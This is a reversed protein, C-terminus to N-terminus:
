ASSDFSCLFLHAYSSVISGEAYIAVSIGYLFVKIYYVLHVAPRAKFTAEAIDLATQNLVLIHKGKNLQQLHVAQNAAVKFLVQQATAVYVQVYADHYRGWYPIPIVPQLAPDPVVCGSFSRNIRDREEMMAAALPRFRDPLAKEVRENLFQTATGIVNFGAFSVLGFNGVVLLRLFCFVILPVTTAVTIRVFLAKWSLTLPRDNSSLAALVSGLVPFLLSLFLYAPRVQYALFVFFALGIWALWRRTGSVVVFLFGASFIAFASALVETLVYPAFTPVIRQCFLPATAAFATWRQCGYRRLGWYFTFVSVYFILVQVQPLFTLRPTLLRYLSLVLPYGVTRIQMLDSSLSGFKFSLYSVSDTVILPTVGHLVVLAAFLTGSEVALWFVPNRVIRSLDRRRVGRDRPAM